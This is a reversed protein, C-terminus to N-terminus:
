LPRFLLLCLSLAHSFYKLLNYLFNGQFPFYIVVLTWSAWLTEYLVFGLFCVGLCMNILGVFILCVFFCINFAALSFCCIICLLIKM